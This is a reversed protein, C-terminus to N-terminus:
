LCCSYRPRSQRRRRQLDALVDLAKPAATTAHSMLTPTTELDGEVLRFACIQKRSQAEDDLRYTLVMTRLALKGSKAWYEDVQSQLDEAEGLGHVSAAAGAQQRFAAASLPPTDERAVGIRRYTVGSPLNTRVHLECAAVDAGDSAERAWAYAGGGLGVFAAVILILRM